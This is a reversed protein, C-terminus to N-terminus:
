KSFHLTLRFSAQSPTATQRKTFPRQWGWCDIGQYVIFRKIISLRNIGDGVTLGKIFSLRNIGDEVIRTPIADVTPSPMLRKRFLLSLHRYGPFTQRLRLISTM